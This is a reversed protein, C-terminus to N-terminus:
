DNKVEDYVDRSAKDWVPDILNHAEEVYLMYKVVKINDKKPRFCNYKNNFYLDNDKGPTFPFSPTASISYEYKVDEGNRTGTYTIKEKTINVTGEGVVYYPDSKLKKTYIDVLYADYTINLDGKMLEDRVMRRQDKYWEDITKYPLYSGNIAKIQYESDMTIENGCAKCRMSNNNIEMTFESHCKPCHYIIKDLGNITSTKGKYKYHHSQNWTLDNYSFMKLYKDYLEEVSKEELEEKTFLLHYHYEHHGKSLENKYRPRVLYSGYSKCLVVPTKMKKLFKLTAPNMPHTSGSTSQIGEPFFCLSGGMSIVKMMNRMASLDAEYLSKLIVQARLMIKFLGKIFINQYGVVVNPRTYRWGHLVYYFNDRSAHDGILIVPKMKLPKFDDHYYYKAKPSFLVKLGLITRLLIETSKTPLTVVRNNLVELLDKGM